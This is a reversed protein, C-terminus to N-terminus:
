TCRDPGLSPDSSVASRSSHVVACRGALPTVSTNDYVIRVSSGDSVSFSHALCARLVPQQDGSQLPPPLLAPRLDVINDLVGADADIRQYIAGQM